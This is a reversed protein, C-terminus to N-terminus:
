QDLYGMSKLWEGLRHHWSNAPQPGEKMGFGHGGKAYLHMEAPRKHRHYELYLLASATSSLKDDSAHILLIPPSKDTVTVEPRLTFPDKEDTVLYAPYVPVAFAPTIDAPDVKPDQVYSRENAHLATMVTLNGGASFGLIGIREPRIQFETARSRLIGLARQADALPAEHPRENDRRPVRYKLVVGTVGLTNLYDAVQTGEHQIALINYGGGPCILVATGNPKDAPYVTLTPTSVNSVRAIGDKTVLEEPKAVYDAKEAAGKPWLKIEVPTAAQALLPLALLLILHRHM